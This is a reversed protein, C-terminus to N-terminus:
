YRSALPRELKVYGSFRLGEIENVAKEEATIELYGYTPKM